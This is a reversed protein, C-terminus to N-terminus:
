PAFLFGETMQREQEREIYDQLRKTQAARQEPTLPPRDIGQVKDALKMAGHALAVGLVPIGIMAVGPIGTLAGAVLGAAMGAMAGLTGWGAQTPLDKPQESKATKSSLTARDDYSTRHASQKPGTTVKRAPAHWFAARSQNVSKLM